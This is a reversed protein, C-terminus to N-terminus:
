YEPSPNLHALRRLMALGLTRVPGKQPSWRAVVKYSGDKAAEIVWVAGDCGDHSDDRTPLSWYQEKEVQDLFWETEEKSLERTENKILLGPGGFGGRGNTVKVTLLSKGHESVDLRIAVPNHRARLWLFRYAHARAKSLQLMSPEGLAKLETSYWGAVFDHEQQTDGLALNPFYQVDQACTSTALLALFVVTAAASKMAVVKCRRRGCNWGMAFKLPPFPLQWM